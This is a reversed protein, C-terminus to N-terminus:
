LFACSELCFRLISIVVMKDGVAFKENRFVGLMPTKRKKTSAAVRM